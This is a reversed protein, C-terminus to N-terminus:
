KIHTDIEVGTARVRRFNFSIEHIRIGHKQFIHQLFSESHLERHKSFEYADDFRTGFFRSIHPAALCFRDNIPFKCFNPIQVCSTLRAPEFWVRQLPHLYRVDPRCYMIADYGEGVLSTVQKLSYLSRIHNDFTSDKFNSNWPDRHTRYKHLDLQADVVDQDEIISKIPNFLRWATNDLKCGIEGARRNTYHDITYTHLLIDYTFGFESLKDLINKKFSDYTYGSSRCIGWICIAIHM